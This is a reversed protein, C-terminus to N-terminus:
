WRIRVLAGLADLAVELDEEVVFPLNMWHNFGGGEMDWIVVPTNVRLAHIVEFKTGWSECSGPRYAFVADVEEVAELDKRIMEWGNAYEPELKIPDVWSIGGLHEQETEIITEHTEEYEPHDSLPGALYVDYKDPEM